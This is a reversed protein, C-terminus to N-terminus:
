VSNCYTCNKSRHHYNKLHCTRGQPRIIIAIAASSMVLMFKPKLCDMVATTM